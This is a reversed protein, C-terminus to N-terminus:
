QNLYIEEAIRGGDPHCPSGRLLGQQYNHKDDVAVAHNVGLAM